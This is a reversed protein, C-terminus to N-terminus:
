NKGLKQAISDMAGLGTMSGQYSTIGEWAAPARARSCRGGGLRSGVKGMSQLFFPTKSIM